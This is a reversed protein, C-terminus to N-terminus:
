LGTILDFHLHIDSKHKEQSAAPKNAHQSSWSAIGRTTSISSTQTGPAAFAIPNTHKLYHRQETVYALAVCELPPQILATLKLLPRINHQTQTSHSYYWLRAARTVTILTTACCLAKDHVTAHATIVSLRSNFFRSFPWSFVSLKHRSLMNRQQNKRQHSQTWGSELRDKVGGPQISWHASQHVSAYLANPYCVTCHDPRLEVQFCVMHLKHTLMNTPCRIPLSTVWEKKTYYVGSRGVCPRGDRETDKSYSKKYREM